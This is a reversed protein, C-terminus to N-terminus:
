IKRPRNASKARRPDHGSFLASRPPQAVVCVVAIDYRLTASQQIASKYDAFRQSNWSNQVPRVDQRSCTPSIASQFDASRALAVSGLSVWILGGIIWAAVAPAKGSESPPQPAPKPRRPLRSLERLAPIVIHLGLFAVVVVLFAAAGNPWRLATWAILTWGLIGGVAKFWQKDTMWAYGWVAIAFLAPWSYGILDLVSIKDEFNAVEVSLASSAQQVPALFTLDRPVILDQNEAVYGLNILAAVAVAFSILGLVLGSLHQPSFKYIGARSTWRWVMVSLGVLILAAFLSLM